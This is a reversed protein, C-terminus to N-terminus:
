ESFLYKAVGDVIETTLGALNMRGSLLLYIGFRERLYEVQQPNLGTWWFLGKQQSLSSFDRKPHYIQLSALLAHRMEVIRERMNKLEQRWESFLEDSRLITSVIRAGYLPPNSYASRILVNAQSKVVPVSSTERCLLALAGVREGYLGMNKAFSYAVLMELGEEAFQRVPFADEEMEEGFGQYAFDFVALLQQKKFLRSLEKWDEKTPDQGTPNHCCVQLLVASKQPIQQIAELFGERDIQLSQAQFYPYSGVQLGAHEFIQRHNAWSPQSLFIQSVGMKKLLEGGVRLAGTGGVTQMGLLHEKRQAALEKGFILPFIPQIFEQSGEIPQYTKPLHQHLLLSEAKRVSHLVLPTGSAAQYTGVSLDIKEKRPDAAVLKPIGFVPDPPALVLEEFFTM